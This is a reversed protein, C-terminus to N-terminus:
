KPPRCKSCPQYSHQASSLEIAIASKSLYQCGSLHYKSGTNTVYVIYAQAQSSVAPIASEADHSEPKDPLASEASNEPKDPLTSGASRSEPKDPLTSEADHSEPKDPLTSEASREDPKDPSPPSTEPHTQLVAASSPIAAVSATSLATHPKEEINTGCGAILAVATILLVVSIMLKSGFKGM